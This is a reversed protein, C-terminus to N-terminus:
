GDWWCRPTAHSGRSARQLVLGVVEYLEAFATTWGFHELTLQIQDLPAPQPRAIRGLKEVGHARM